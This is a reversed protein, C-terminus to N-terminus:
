ESLNPPATRRPEPVTSPGGADSDPVVALDGRAATGEAPRESGALVTAGGCLLPALLGAVVSGPDSFTTRVVVRSSADLGFTEGVGRAADLADGHSVTADGCVLVADAPDVDSPPTGPNESWLQAEWHTTEPRTPKGGFVALNTGPSPDADAEDAVATLVVRDGARLGPGPDFRVRAGLRAAGLFALATHFEPEPAVAVTAGERVGLHRLVNAAKYANTIVDRYSRESDNRTVLAPNRSRRERALLDGVVDM